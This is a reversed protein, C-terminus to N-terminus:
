RSVSVEAEPYQECAVLYDRVFKVLGEYTGWGNSPNFRKFQEPKTQLLALGDRLPAVLRSARDVGIEDPRWLYEYIGVESAMKNLNHTINASYVQDSESSQIAVVPERGPFKEDWEARTIEKTQGDERIFIGSGYNDAKAGKRTLYVDLSMKTKEKRTPKTQGVCIPM